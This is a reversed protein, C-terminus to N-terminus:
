KKPLFDIWLYEIEEGNYTAFKLTEFGFKSYFNRAKDNLPIIFLGRVLNLFDFYEKVEPIIIEKMVTSGIGKNQYKIDIGLYKLELYNLSEIEGDDNPEDEEVQSINLTYFGFLEDDKFLLYTVSKADLMDIYAKKKLYNDLEMAKCSFNKVIKSYNKSDIIKIKKLEDM